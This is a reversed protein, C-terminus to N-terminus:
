LVSLIARAILVIGNAMPSLVSSVYGLVMVAGKVAKSALSYLLSKVIVSEMGAVTAVTSSLMLAGIVYASFDLLSVAVKEKV